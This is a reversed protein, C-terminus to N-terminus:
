GVVKRLKALSPTAEKAKKLVRARVVVGAPKASIKVPDGTRPNRGMRAKTAPKVKAELQVLQGVKVKECSTLLEIVIGDLSNLVHRVDSKSYGTDESVLEVLQALGVARRAPKRTTRKAAAKPKAKVTGKAKKVPM